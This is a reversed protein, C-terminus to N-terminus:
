LLDPIGPRTRKKSLVETIDVWESMDRPKFRTNITPHRRTGPYWPTGTYGLTVWRALVSSDPYVQIIEIACDMADQHMYTRSIGLQRNEAM